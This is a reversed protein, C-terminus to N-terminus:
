VCGGPEFASASRRQPSVSVKASSRPSGPGLPTENERTLPTVPPESPDRLALLEPGVGFAFGHGHHQFSLVPRLSPSRRARRPSCARTETTGDAWVSLLPQGRRGNPWANGRPRRPPLYHAGRSVGHHRPSEPPRAGLPNSKLYASRRPFGFEGLSSSPDTVPRPPLRAAAASCWFQDSRGNEDRVAKQIRPCPSRATTM